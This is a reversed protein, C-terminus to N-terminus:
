STEVGFWVGVIIEIGYWGMELMDGNEVLWIWGTKMGYWVIWGKKTGYM